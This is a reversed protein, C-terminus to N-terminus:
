KGTIYRDNNQNRGRWWRILCPQRYIQRCCYDASFTFDSIISRFIFVWLKGMSSVMRKEPEIFNIESPPVDFDNSFEPSSFDDMEDNFVIGTNKGKIKSGFFLNITSTVAVTQRSKDVTSVHLTGHDSINYFLPHYYDIPHTKETINARLQDVFDPNSCRWELDNM